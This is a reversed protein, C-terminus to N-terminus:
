TYASDIYKSAVKWMEFMKKNKIDKKNERVLSM